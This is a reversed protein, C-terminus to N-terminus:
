LIEMVTHAIIPSDVCYTADARPDYLEDVTESRGLALNDGSRGKVFCETTCLQYANAVRPDRVVIWGLNDNVYITTWVSGCAWTGTSQRRFKSFTNTTMNLTRIPLQSDLIGDIDSVVYEGWDSHVLHGLRDAASWVIPIQCGNRHLTTDAGVTYSHCIEGDIEVLQSCPKDLTVIYTTVRGDFAYIEEKHETFYVHSRGYCISEVSPVPNHRTYYWPVSLVTRWTLTEYVSVTYGSKYNSTAALTTM